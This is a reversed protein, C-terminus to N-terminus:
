KEKDEGAYELCFKGNAGVEYCNSPSHDWKVRAWDSSTGGDGIITGIEGPGDQNGWHWDKGRKVRAGIDVFKVAEGTTRKAQKVTSVSPKKQSPPKNSPSVISPKTPSPVSIPPIPKEGLLRQLDEVQKKLSDITPKILKLPCTAMHAELLKRKSRFVCGIDAADCGVEEEPCSAKHIRESKRLFEQQCKDCSM